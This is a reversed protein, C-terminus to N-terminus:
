GLKGIIMFSILLGYLAIGEALAVFILSKGMIKPDESIAGLAASSAAAVAIGAGICSLGTSLAAALFGMGSSVATNAAEATGEAFAVIGGNWMMVTMVAMIGFFSFVNVGLVTVMKKGKLKFGYHAIMPMAAALVLIILCVMNKAAGFMFFVRENIIRYNMICLKSANVCINENVDPM